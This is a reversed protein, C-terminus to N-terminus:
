YEIIIIGSGGDGGASGSSSGGAGGTGVSYAISAGPIVTLVNGIVLSINTGGGGGGAGYASAGGGGGGGYNGVSGVGLQTGRGGAGGGAGGVATGTITGAAGSGGASGAGGAAGLGGEAIAGGGGTAGTGGGGGAGTTAGTFTTSGGNAGNAGPNYGEGGGGGGGVCTVRIRYVGAPVTWNGSGSTIRVIEGRWVYDKAMQTAWGAGLLTSLVTSWNDGIIKNINYLISKNSQATAGAAKYASAVARINSGASSYWGQKDTAWVPATSIWAASLIQTGATGSPTLGLYATSATAIATWSSANPTIIESAKFFAGAIEIGSGAAIASNVSTTFETL